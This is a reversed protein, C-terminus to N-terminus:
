SFTCSTVTQEPRQVCDSLRPRMFIQDTLTKDGTLKWFWDKDSGAIIPSYVYEVEGWIVTTNAIKIGDPILSTVVDGKNRKTAGGTADGWDIKAVKNADIKVSSIKIKLKTDPFPYAVQKAAAFINDRETDSISTVQAVLDAVSRAAISVKRDIAVAQSIEVAGVFLTLMLPLLMAFEILSVGRQDRVLRRAHAVVRSRLRDALNRIARSM